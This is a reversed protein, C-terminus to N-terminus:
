ASKLETYSQCDICQSSTPLYNLRAISIEESCTICIGYDGTDVRQRAAVINKLDLIYLQYQRQIDRLERENEAIDISETLGGANEKILAIEERKAAIADRKIQELDPLKAIIKELTLEQKAKKM